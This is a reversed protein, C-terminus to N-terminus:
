IVSLRVYGGDAEEEEGKGERWVEVCVEMGGARRWVVRARRARRRLSLGREQEGSKQIMSRVIQLSATREAVSGPCSRLTMRVM